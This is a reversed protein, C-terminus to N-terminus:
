ENGGQRGSLYLGKKLVVGNERSRIAPCRLQDGGEAPLVDFLAATEPAYAVPEYGLKFLNMRAISLPYSLDENGPDDVQAEYLACYINGFDNEMGRAIKMDEVAYQTSISAADAAIREQQLRLFRELGDRELYPEHVEPVVQRKERPMARVALVRLLLGVATLVAPIQMETVAFILALVALAMECLPHALVREWMAPKAAQPRQTAVGTDVRFLTLYELSDRQRQYLTNVLRRDNETEAAALQEQWRQELWEQALHRGENLKM